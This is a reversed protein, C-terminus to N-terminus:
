PETCTSVPTSRRTGLPLTNESSPGFPAPLVVVTRMRVVSVLGSAPVALTAPCSTTVPRASTRRLMLRVPWSTAISSSCVPLSFRRIIALSHRSERPAAPSRAASSSSWNSRTSAASRRTPVYEPPMRLRSSRAALRMTRGATIKRSSGVVPRSGRLRAAIHSTIVSRVREPTVIKRVV